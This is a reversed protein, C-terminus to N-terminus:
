KLFKRAIELDEKNDIEFWISGNVDIASIKETKLHQALILDYYLNEEFKEISNKLWEKLFNLGEKSCRIIGLSKKYDEKIDRANSVIEHNIVIDKKNTKIYSGDINKVESDVFWGIDNICNKNLINKDFIIDSELIWIEENINNIALYLSYMNNSKEYIFNNIYSINVGSYNYGLKEKIKYGMYGIVVVVKKIGISKLAEISYEILSKNNIKVLCKPIDKTLPMLRTGKGAALIVGTKIM